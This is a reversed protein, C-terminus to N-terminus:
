KCARLFAVLDALDQMSLQQDLGAPMISVTGPRIEDVQDRAIRVEQDAKLTLVLGEPTDSKVLGSHTLGDVTVVLVPEYSRVFSASPFLIAELLDREARIQGIRTLDPGIKGGLYGIAHCSTCANKKNAFVLQGRRIDGAPLGKLTEELRVRQRAHDVNIAAMLRDMEALVEPSGKGFVNRLTDPRLSRFAAAQEVSVLAARLLDQDTSGALAGVLRDLELPSATQFLPILSRKRSDTLKATGLLSLAWLRAETSDGQLAKEALLFSADSLNEGGAPISALAELRVDVPLDSATGIRTLLGELGSAQARTVPLARITKLTPQPAASRRVLDAELSAVWSAPVTKLSSGRMIALCRDSVVPSSGARLLGAILEQIAESSALSAAQGTLEAEAKPDLGDTRLEAALASALEAGWESHRSIVWRAAERCSSDKSRLAALVPTGPMKSPAAQELAMLTARLVAPHTSSLGELVADTAAIASSPAAAIEMLAFTMAHATAFDAGDVSELSRLIAPVSGAAGVQAMAEAATRRVAPSRHELLPEVQEAAPLDKWAGVVHLAVQRVHDDPHTLQRRVFARADPHDIWSAAWVAEVANKPDAVVLEELATVGADGATRRFAQRARLRVAPRPDVLRSALERPKVNAWDLRRGRADAPPQFGTRRVRYIAGLVDPKGLQSTPCCLKYWGGTDVILLSGDADELVDTPHFDINDSVVFDSTESRFTGGVPHLQHRTVKHLNFCTTLLNDRFEDGWDRCELRHLGCPAAPGLHDLVPMVEPFTRPHGDLVGHVKGYLGGFLAHILGDRRGGAPTQFFTCSLFREGTPLFAVDVPNDMGGTMVSEIRTGDPRCRFIHSAKTVLPSRGPREYTQEAFAGKCWYIWGDPGLYPGHLDNACGTLTKGQFWEVREEAVGDGDRDTLKWISPPAAVYLSGDFWMTGEPFMMRDAYVTRSDFRGDGDTDALRIIRHTPNKVQQQVPDNSGSSDAVYLHGEEDFDATIPREVLSTTTCAEIAFGDPITFSHGNIAVEAGSVSVPAALTVAVLALPALLLERLM